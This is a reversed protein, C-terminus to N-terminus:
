GTDRRAKKALRWHLAFVLALIAIVILARLLDQKGSRRENNLATHFGNQRATALEQAPMNDYIRARKEPLRALKEELFSDNDQYVQYQHAPLTFAPNVIEIASYIAVTTFIASFAICIFCVGLAYIEMLPKKKM